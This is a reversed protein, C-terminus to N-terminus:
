SDHLESSNMSDRTAFIRANQSAKVLEICYMREVVLVVVVVAVIVAVSIVGAVVVDVVIVVVVFLFVVFFYLTILIHVM